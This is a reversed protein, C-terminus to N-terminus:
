ESRLSIKEGARFEQQNCLVGYGTMNIREAVKFVSAQYAARVQEGDRDFAPGSDQLGWLYRM